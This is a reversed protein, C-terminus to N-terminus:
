SGFWAQYENISGIYHPPFASDVKRLGNISGWVQPTSASYVEVRDKHPYSFPTKYIQISQESYSSPVADRKPKTTIYDLTRLSQMKQSTQARIWDSGVAKVETAKNDHYRTQPRRTMLELQQTM